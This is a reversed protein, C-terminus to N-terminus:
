FQIGDENLPTQQSNNRLNELESYQCFAIIILDYYYKQLKKLFEEKQNSKLTNAFESSYYYFESDSIHTLINQIAKLLDQPNYHPESYYKILYNSKLNDKLFENQNSTFM